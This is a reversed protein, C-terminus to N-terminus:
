RERVTNNENKGRAASARMSERVKRIRIILCDDAKLVGYYKQASLITQTNQVIDVVAEKRLFSSNIVLSVREM